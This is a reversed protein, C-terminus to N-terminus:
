LLSLYSNLPLTQYFGIAVQVKIEGSGKQADGTFSLLVSGFSFCVSFFEFFPSLALGFKSHFYIRGKKRV